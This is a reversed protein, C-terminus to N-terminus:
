IGKVKLIRLNESEPQESDNKQQMILLSVRERDRRAHHSIFKCGDIFGPQISRRGQTRLGEECGMAMSVSVSNSDMRLRNERRVVGPCYGELKRGSILTLGRGSSMKRAVIFARTTGAALRDSGWHAVRPKSIRNVFVDGARRL